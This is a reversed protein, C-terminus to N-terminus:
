DPDNLEAYRKEIYEDIDDEFEAYRDYPKRSPRPAPLDSWFDRLGVPAAFTCALADAEDPSALGRAKMHDKKELQIQQDANYGYEVGTLDDALRQDDPIAAGALWARMSAWIEARKNATRIRVGTSWEADDGKGGFHVEIVNAVGLQRLRDIVGAGMAGGDVFVADPRWQQAALAVDGAVQMTDAGQWRQWPRSRADRGQRIALVSSDDGFRACDVGFIVPDSELPQVQRTRAQAVVDAGIFQLSSANPFQGLVRVRAMDSDPGFTKVIEDLYDRNIGEVTRSDIQRTHWLDRHRGFCERFAGSNRTPNGRVIWILETGADTLAGQAVEWIKEDIGSAEDFILLIRKGLNHLGAFAEANNASWTVADARWNKEHGAKTSVLANSMPKFLDHTKSLRHWKLLEPWTKGLVQAETNATVVVRTGACTDLAWKILMAVEASKGIGHGSAVADRFPTHRTREDRLHEGLRILTEEQWARPGKVDALAGKGWDFVDRVYGLPDALYRTLDHQVAHSQTDEPPLLRRSHARSM